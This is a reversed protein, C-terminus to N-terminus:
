RYNQTLTLYYCYLPLCFFQPYALTPHWPLNKSGLPTFTVSSCLFCYISTRLLQHRDDSSVLITLEPLILLSYFADYLLIHMTIPFRSSLLCRALVLHLHSRMHALFANQLCLLSASYECNVVCVVNGNRCGYYRLEV